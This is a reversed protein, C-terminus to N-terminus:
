RSRASWCLSRAWSVLLSRGVVSYVFRDVLMVVLMAVLGCRGVSVAIWGCPSVWMSWGLGFWRSLWCLPQDGVVWGCGWSPWYLAVLLLWGVVFPVFQDMRAPAILARTSAGALRPRPSETDDGTTSLDRRPNALHLPLSSPVPHYDWPTVLNHTRLWATLTKLGSPILPLNPLSNLPLHPTSSHTLPRPLIYQANCREPKTAM